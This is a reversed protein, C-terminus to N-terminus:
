PQMEVDSPGRVIGSFKEPTARGDSSANLLRVRITKGMGGSEESIGAVEIRLLSEQRWLRVIEGARVVLPTGVGETLSRGVDAISTPSATSVPLAFLPWEPHNCSAIM